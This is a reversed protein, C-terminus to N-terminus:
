ASDEIEWEQTFFGEETDELDLLSRVQELWSADITKSVELGAEPFTGSENSHQVTKSPLDDVGNAANTSSTASTISPKGNIVEITVEQSKRIIKRLLDQASVRYIKKNLVAFGELIVPPSKDIRLLPSDPNDTHITIAYYNFTEGDTVVYFRNRLEFTPLSIKPLNVASIATDFLNM